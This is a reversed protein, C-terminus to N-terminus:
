TQASILNALEENLRAVQSKLLNVQMTFDHKLTCAPCKVGCYSVPYHGLGCVRLEFAQSPVDVRDGGELAPLNLLLFM